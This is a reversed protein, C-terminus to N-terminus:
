HPLHDDHLCDILHDDDENQVVGAALDPGGGCLVVEILDLGGGEVGVDEHLEEILGIAAGGIGAEVDEFAHEAVGEEEEDLGDGDGALDEDHCEAAVGELGGARGAGLPGGGDDEADEGEWEAGEDAADGVFVEEFEGGRNALEEVHAQTSASDFTLLFCVGVGLWAKEFAGDRYDLTLGFGRSLWDDRGVVVFDQRRWGFLVEFEM